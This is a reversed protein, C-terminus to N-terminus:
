DIKELLDSKVQESIAQAEPSMQSRLDEYSKTPKTLAGLNHRKGNTQGQLRAVGDNGLAKEARLLLDDFDPYVDELIAKAIVPSGLMISYLNEVSATPFKVQLKEKLADTTAKNLELKELPTGRNIERPKFFPM